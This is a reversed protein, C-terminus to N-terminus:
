NIWVLAIAIFTAITIGFYSPIETLWRSDLEKEDWRFCLWNHLAETIKRPSEIKAKDIEEQIFKPWTKGEDIEWNTETKNKASILHTIARILGKVQDAAEWRNYFQMYVFSGALYISIFIFILTVLTKYLCGMSFNGITYGLAIIAPLYFAIATWAMAEKRHHYNEQSGIQSALWHIQNDM